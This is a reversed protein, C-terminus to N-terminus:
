KHAEAPKDGRGAMERDRDEMAARRSLKVRGKDDIGICKVLIEDGIKVIDEVQKVRFNALESIHCLGDKGPFVEVFAGFEKVTVVKGRYTKGVEIEATLGEISRRAISMGEESVSYIKVSGDDEINIECGSEEVIRKINKGGPGILAGIKEPNIKLTLIRPAYKSMEKRSESLTKAMQALVHYRAVRAREIAETMVQHPLGRLKLDLQFGTIGKETGAIKCDM